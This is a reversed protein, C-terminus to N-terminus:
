ADIKLAGAADDSRLPLEGSVRVSSERAILELGELALRQNEYRLPGTTTISFPQGNWSGSLSEVDATARGRVAHALDGAAEFTASLRGDFPTQLKLPLSELPLDDARAKLTTTWPSALGVVANAVLNFREASADIVAEHNAATARVVVRGLPLTGESGLSDLSLSASGAPSSLSGAGKASLELKGAIRRGDPLTMGQLEVNESQLDFDYTRRAMNYSGTANFRGRGDPQPKEIVLRSLTVDPGAVALDAHMSGLTEGFAVLHDATVAVNASPRAVTGRVTGRAVVRGDFFAATPYAARVLTRLDAASGDIVLDLPQSGRLGVSGTLRARMGEWALDARSITLATTTLVFEAAAAVGTAGGISLSRSRLSVDAAPADITGGLRTDIVAAGRIPTRLAPGRALAAEADRITRAVDPATAHLEGELGGREGIRVRGSMEAGAATIQRLEAQVTRGGWQASLDGGVPITRRAAQTILPALTATGRGSADLYDLGPWAADLKGDMRTDVAYPLNLGRMVAPLLADTIQARVRSTQNRDLALRGSASVRGWPAQLRVFAIEAHRSRSDYTARATLQAGDLSRFRLSSGSVRVDISPAPWAGQITADAAITGGIPERLALFAGTREADLAARVTLALRPRDLLQVQGACDVRSGLAEIEVGDIRVDDRGLDLVAAFRDITGAHNRVQIRGESSAFRVQHRGTLPIGTVTASSRTAVVDLGRPVNAYRVRLNSVSLNAILYDRQAPATDSHAAPRPLNDRGDAGVIYEVDLSEARGTDVVIRGRLLQPLSLDVRAHAITAFPPLDASATSRLRADRLEISLTALNYRLEKAQLEIQRSALFGIARRLAFRRAPGSHLALLLVGACM